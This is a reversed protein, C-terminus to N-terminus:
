SRRAAFGAQEVDLAVANVIATQDVVLNLLTEVVRWDGGSLAVTDRNGEFRGRLRRLDEGVIEILTTIYESTTQLAEVRQILSIDIPPTISGMMM